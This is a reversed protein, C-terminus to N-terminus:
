LTLKFTPPPFLTEAIVASITKVEKRVGVKCALPQVDRVHSCLTQTVSAKMRWRVAVSLTTSSAPARADNGSWECTAILSSLSMWKESEFLSCMSDSSEEKQNTGVFM